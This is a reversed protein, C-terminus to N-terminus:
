AAKRFIIMSVCARTTPFGAISPSNRSQLREAELLALLVTSTRASARRAWGCGRATVVPSVRAALGPQVRELAGPRFLDGAEVNIDAIRSM